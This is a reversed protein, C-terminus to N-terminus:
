GLQFLLSQSDILETPKHNYRAGERPSLGSLNSEPASWTFFGLTTQHTTHLCISGKNGLSSTEPRFHRIEDSKTIKNLRATAAWSFSLSIKLLEESWKKRKYKTILGKLGSKIRTVVCSM